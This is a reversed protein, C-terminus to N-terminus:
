GESSQSGQSQRSTLGIQLIREIALCTSYSEPSKGNLWKYYGAHHVRAAVQIDRVTCRHHATFEKVVRRRDEKPTIRMAGAADQQDVAVLRGADDLALHEEM